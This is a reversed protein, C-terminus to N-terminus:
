QALQVADVLEQPATAADYSGNFENTVVDYIANKISAPNAHGHANSGILNGSAAAAKMEEYPATM